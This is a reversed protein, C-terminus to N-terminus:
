QGRHRTKQVGEPQQGVVEFTSLIQNAAEWDADSVIVIQVVAIFEQNEPVAALVLFSSRKEGCNVWLDYKGTYPPEQYDYRTSKECAQAYDYYDLMSDVSYSQVLSSSAGFFVGPERWTDNYADLDASASLAPGVTERKFAWGAGNVTNWETPVSMKLDGTDDTIATYGSYTGGESVGPVEEELLRPPPEEAEPTQSTALKLNRGNLQGELVEGTESRLVELNMTDSPERSRLVDCYDAMTGDNALVLGELKRIIDGARVGAEDAPAGAKVSSVWIGSNTEDDSLIAEGNVGISDVNQGQRLQEIVQLAKESKIAYNQYTESISAYNVGVVKSNNGVLPGGSNGPYINADHELVSDVSAWPTEGNAEDKSVIGRTLTFEPEGFPFGAAYVDIGTNIAGDHWEVYPYGEGDIDIVALDSCESVGLVKANLPKDEGAVYVQLLAAGTVVHNNTIAIGSPDIIFGSGEWDDTFQQGTGADLFAGKAEIRVTASELDERSTVVEGRSGTAKTAKDAKTGSNTKEQPDCAGLMLCLMMLCSAFWWRKM